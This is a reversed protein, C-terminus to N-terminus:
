LHAPSLLAYITLDSMELSSSLAFSPSSVEKPNQAHSELTYHDLPNLPKLEEPKPNRTQPDLPKLTRPEPKPCRDAPKPSRTGPEPNRAEPKPIRTEPKPSRPEPKPCRAEPNPNVLIFIFVVFWTLWEGIILRFMTGAHMYPKPNRTEPKTDRTEPRRVLGSLVAVVM